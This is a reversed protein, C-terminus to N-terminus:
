TTWEGKEAKIVKLARDVALIAPIIVGLAMLVLWYLTMKTSIHMPAQRKEIGGGEGNSATEGGPAAGGSEIFDYIAKIEDDSLNQDPMVQENYEEFVAVAEEDGAEIMDQSSKTWELLWDM